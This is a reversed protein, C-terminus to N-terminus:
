GRLIHRQQVRTAPHPHKFLDIDRHQPQDLIHGEEAARIAAMARINEAM